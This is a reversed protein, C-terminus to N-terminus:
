LLTAIASIFNRFEEEAKEWDLELIEQFEKVAKEYGEPYTFDLKEM